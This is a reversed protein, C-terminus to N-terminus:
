AEPAQEWLRQPLLQPHEQPRPPRHLPPSSPRERRPLPGEGSLFAPRFPEAVGGGGRNAGGGGCPAAGCGGAVVIVKGYKKVAPASGLPGLIDHLVDGAKCNALELTSKGVVQFVISINGKDSDWDKLTLPIREGHEHLRYIVFQGPQAKVAIEPAEIDFEFIDIAIQRTALIKFM